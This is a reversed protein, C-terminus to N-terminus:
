FPNMNISQFLVSMYASARNHCTSPNKRQGSSCGRHIEPHVYRWALSTSLLQLEFVLPCLITTKLEPILLNTSTWSKNIKCKTTPFLGVLPDSPFENLNKCEHHLELTVTDSKNSPDYEVIQCWILYVYRRESLM